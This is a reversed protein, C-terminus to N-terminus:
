LGMETRSGAGPRKYIFVWRKGGNKSIRLYLNEGDSYIGPKTLKEVAKTTLKNRAM